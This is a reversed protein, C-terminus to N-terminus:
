FILFVIQSKESQGVWFFLFIWVHSFFCFSYQFRVNLQNGLPSKSKGGLSVM